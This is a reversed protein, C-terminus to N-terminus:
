GYLQKKLTFWTGGTQCRFCYFSGNANVRLKWINDSKTKNGKNCLGCVKFELGDHCKRYESNMTSIVKKLENQDVTFHESVFNNTGYFHQVIKNAFRTSSKVERILAYIM